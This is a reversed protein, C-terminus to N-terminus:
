ARMRSGDPDHLARRSLTAKTLEGAIDVEVTAGDNSAVESDVMALGVAAGVTHAYAASMVAGVIRGDAIVSEGHLLIPEPDELRLSILRHPGPTEKARRTPEAGIFDTELKVVHGLGSSFPDDTPGVDHGVHVFGKEIRLSDLAHYGALRLGLDAGAEVIADDVHVAFESPVYLEWGLEGVFSARIALAPASGVQIERATFFPFGENSLDATTLRTLLERSRPGMVALTASASTVDIITVSKGRGHARLWELTRHQTASPTIVLFRDEALRTVTGDNEIGGGTNLFLTYVVKGDVVDVDNTCVHQLLPLADAGTVEIKAFASLDFLAVAERAARHEEAAYPFWNQRGFSYGYVPEVGKPAFWMPREWQALEGFCAGAAALRDYLPSRRIGRATTAQLNPWHM